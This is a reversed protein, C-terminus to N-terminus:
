AAIRRRRVFMGGALLGLTGLVSAPEPVAAVTPGATIPAGSDDYAGGLIEFTDIGNWTVELWGYLPTTGNNAQFGVFSGGGWAPQKTGDYNFLSSSNGDSAWNAGSGIIAGTAFKFLGDNDATMALNLDGDWYPAMGVNALAGDEYADVYLTNGAIDWNFRAGSDTATRSGSVSSVDLSIIAADATAALYGAGLGATLYTALQKQNPPSM